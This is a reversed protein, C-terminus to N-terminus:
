LRGVTLATKRGSSEATTAEVTQSTSFRAFMHFCSRVISRASSRNQEFHSVQASTSAATTVASTAPAEAM